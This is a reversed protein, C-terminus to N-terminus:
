RASAVTPQPGSAVQRPTPPESLKQCAAADGAVCAGVYLELARRPDTPGLVSALQMCAQTEGDNCSKELLSVAMVVDRGVVKGESYLRGLNSCGSREGEDCAKSFFARAQAPAPDGALGHEVALGLNTCGRPNGHDCAQKYLAVARQPDRAVGRGTEFMVGLASCGGADGDHCAKDFLAHAEPLSKQDPNRRLANEVCGQEDYGTAAGGFVGGCGTTLATTATLLVGMLLARHFSTMHSASETFIRFHAPAGRRPGRATM